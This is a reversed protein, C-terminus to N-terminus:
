LRKERGVRPLGSWIGVMVVLLGLVIPQLTKVGKAQAVVGVVFPWLAGGSSGVASSFSIGTVHLHKPLLKTVVVIASPFVPGLFFGQLAVAIASVVFSNKLWFLLELGASLLLYLTIALREGLRPTIFGLILRGLTLGLWFGTATLGSAFPTGHRQELM